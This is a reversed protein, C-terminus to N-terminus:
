PFFPLSSSSPSFLLPLNPSFALLFAVLSLIPLLVPFLSHSYSFTLPVLQPCLFYLICVTALYFLSLLTLPLPLPLCFSLNCSHLPSHFASSFFPFSSRLHSPFLFSCPPLSPFSSLSLILVCRRRSYRWCGQLNQTRLRHLGKCQTREVHSDM